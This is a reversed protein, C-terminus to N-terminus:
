SIRVMMYAPKGDSWNFMVSEKEFGLHEAMHLAQEFDCEVAAMLRKIGKQKVVVDMWKKVTEYGTKRFKLAYKTWDTWAWAVTPTVMKIGGVGLTLGEYELAYVYDITTPQEKFCGRSISHEGVFELDARTADRLKM